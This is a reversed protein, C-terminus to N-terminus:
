HFGYGCSTSTLIKNGTNLIVGLNLSTIKFNLSWKICQLTCHLGRGVVCQHQHKIIEKGKGKLIVVETRPIVTQILGAWVWIILRKCGDLLFQCSAGLLYTTLLVVTNTLDTGNECALKQKPSTERPFSKIKQRFSTRKWESSVEHISVVWSNKWKSWESSKGGYCMMFGVCCETSSCHSASDVFHLQCLVHYYNSRNVKNWRTRWQWLKIYIEEAM